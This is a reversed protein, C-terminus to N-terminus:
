GENGDVAAEESVHVSSPVAPSHDSVMGGEILIGRDCISEVVAASHSVFLTCVGKARIQAMRDICKEQFAADGVALIEDVLLIEPDLHVAVSFGLRAVMGSSYHRVPEEIFHELGSFECIDDFHGRIERRTMGLLVGNLFINERGSLDPHFGAGLGLLPSVRGHTEITGSNPRMIGAILSLTTSKGSGNRGILGLTEGKHVEFSVDKLVEVFAGETKRAGFSALRLVTDKLSSQPTLPYRKYVHSLKVVAESM